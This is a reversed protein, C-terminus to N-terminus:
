SGEASSEVAYRPAEKVSVPALGLLSTFLVVAGLKTRAFATTEDWLLWRPGSTLADV